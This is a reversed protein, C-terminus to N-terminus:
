KDEKNYGTILIDMASCDFIVYDGNSDILWISGPEPERDLALRYSKGNISISFYGSLVSSTSTTKHTSSTVGDSKKKKLGAKRSQDKKSKSGKVSNRVEMVAKRSLTDPHEIFQLAVEKSEKYLRRLQNLSSLDRVAPDRALEQIPEPAKTLAVYESISTESMDLEEALTKQTIKVDKSNLLRAFYSAMEWLTLDSRKLNELLQIVRVQETTLDNRLLSPVPRGAIKSALWRREGTVIMYRGNETPRIVIPQFVGYTKVSLLIDQVRSDDVGIRPQEPDPDIIDADYLGFGFGHEAALASADGEGAKTKQEALSEALHTIEALSKLDDMMGGSM